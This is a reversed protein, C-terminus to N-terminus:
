KFSSCKSGTCLPIFHFPLLDDDIVSMSTYLASTIVKISFLLERRQFGQKNHNLLFTQKITLLNSELHQETLKTEPILLNIIHPINIVLGTYNNLPMLIKCLHFSVSPPFPYRNNVRNFCPNICSLTSFIHNSFLGTILLPVM